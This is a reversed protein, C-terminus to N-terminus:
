AKAFVGVTVTFPQQNFNTPWLSRMDVLAMDLRVIYDFRQKTNCRITIVYVSNSTGCTPFYHLSFIYVPIIYSNRSSVHTVTWQSLISHIYPYSFPSFCPITLIFVKHAKILDKPPLTIGPAGDYKLDCDMKKPAQNALTLHLSIQWCNWRNQQGCKSRPQHTQLHGKWRRAMWYLRLSLLWWAAQWLIQWMSSPMRSFHWYAPKPKPRPGLLLHQLHPTRYCQLKCTSGNLGLQSTWTILHRIPVFPLDQALKLDPGEVVKVKWLSPNLCQKFMATLSTHIMKALVPWLAQEHTAWLCSVQHDQTLEFIDLNNELPCHLYMCLVVLNFIIQGMHIITFKDVFRSAPIELGHWIGGQRGWYWM